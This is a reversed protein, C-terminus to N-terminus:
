IYIVAAKQEEYALNIVNKTSDKSVKITAKSNPNYVWKINGAAVIKDLIEPTFESGIQAETETQMRIDAGMPDKYKIIVKSMSPKYFLKIINKGSSENVVIPEVKRTTTFIKNAVKLAYVWEKGSKDEIYDKIEPM